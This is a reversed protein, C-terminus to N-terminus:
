KTIENNLHYNNKKIHLCSILFFEKAYLL